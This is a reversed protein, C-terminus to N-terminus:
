LTFKKMTYRITGATLATTAYKVQGIGGAESVTFTVGADGLKHLPMIAFPSDNTILLKGYQTASGRKAVYEIVMDNNVLEDITASTLALASQNDNLTQKYNATLTELVIIRLDLAAIAAANIVINAANTAIDLTNQAVDAIADVIERYGAKIAMTLRDFVTEMTIPSYVGLSRFGGPQFAEPDFEVTISYLASLGFTAPVGPNAIWAQAADVLTISGSIGNVGLNQETYDTALVLPTEIGTALETVFVNISESEFTPYPISTVRTAVSGDGAVTVTTVDSKAIM